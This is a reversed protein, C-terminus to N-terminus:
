HVTYPQKPPNGDFRDWTHTECTWDHDRVVVNVLVAGDKTTLARGCIACKVPHLVSLGSTETCTM